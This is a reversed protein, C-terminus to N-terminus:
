ASSEEDDYMARKMWLPASALSLLISEPTEQMSERGRRALRVADDGEKRASLSQTWRRGRGSVPPLSRALGVAGAEQEGADQTGTGDEGLNGRRTPISLGALRPNVRLRLPATGQGVPTGAMRPSMASPLPSVLSESYSRDRTQGYAHHHASSPPFLHGHALAAPSYGPSLVDAYGHGGAWASAGGAGVGGAGAGSTSDHSESRWPTHPLDPASLSRAHGPPYILIENGDQDVSANTWSSTTSAHSDTSMMDADREQEAEDGADVDVRLQEYEDSSSSSSGLRVRDPPVPFALRNLSIMTATSTRRSDAYPDPYLYKRPSQSESPLEATPPHFHVTLSPSPSAMALPVTSYPTPTTAGESSYEMTSAVSVRRDSQEVGGAVEGGVPRLARLEAEMRSLMVRLAGVVHEQGQLEIQRIQDNCIFVQRAVRDCRATVKGLAQVMKHLKAQDVKLISSDLQRSLSERHFLLTDYKEHLRALEARLRTEESACTQLIAPPLLRPSSPLHSLTINVLSTLGPSGLSTLLTPLPITSWPLPLNQFPSPTSPRSTATALDTHGSSPTATQTTEVDRGDKESEVKERRESADVESLAKGEGGELARKDRDMLVLNIADGTSRSRRREVLRLPKLMVPEASEIRRLSPRRKPTVTHNSDDSGDGKEGRGLSQDRAPLDSLGLVGLTPLATGPMASSASAGARPLAPRVKSGKGKGRLLTPSLPEPTLNSTRLKLAQPRRKVDPSGGQALVPIGTSSRPLTAPAVRELSDPRPPREPPIIVVEVDRSPSSDRSRPGASASRRRRGGSLSRLLPAALNSSTSTTNSPTTPNAGSAARPRSYQSSYATPPGNARSLSRFSPRRKPTANKAAADGEFITSIRKQPSAEPTPPLACTPPPLSPPLASTPTSLLAKGSKVVSSQRVPTSAGSGPGGRLPTSRGGSPPSLVPVGSAGGGGERHKKSSSRSLASGSSSGASLSPGGTPTTPPKAKPIFSPRTSSTPTSVPNTPSKFASPPPPLPREASVPTLPAATDAFPLPQPTTRGSKFISFIAM